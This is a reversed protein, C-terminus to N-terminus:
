IGLIGLTRGEIKKMKLFLYSCHDELEVSPYHEQSGGCPYADEPYYGLHQGRSVGQHVGHTGAEQDKGDQVGEPSDAM